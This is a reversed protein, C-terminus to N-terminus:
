ADNSREKQEQTEAGPDEEETYGAGCLPCGDGASISTRGCKSCYYEVGSEESM